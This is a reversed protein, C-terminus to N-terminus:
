RRRTGCTARFRFDEALTAEAFLKQAEVFIGKLGSQAYDQPFLEAAQDRHARFRTGTRLEHESPMGPNNHNKERYIGHVSPSAKTERGEQKCFYCDRLCDAHTALREPLPEGRGAERLMPYRRSCDDCFVAKISNLEAEHARLQAVTEVGFDEFGGSDEEM